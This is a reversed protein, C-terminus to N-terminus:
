DSSSRKIIHYYASATPKSLNIQEMMAKIADQRSVNGLSNLLVRAKHLGSNPDVPRGVRKTVKAVSVTESAAETATEVTNETDFNTDTM